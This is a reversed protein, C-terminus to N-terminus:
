PIYGRAVADRKAEKFKEKLLDGKATNNDKDKKNALLKCQPCASQDATTHSYFNYPDSCINCKVVTPM